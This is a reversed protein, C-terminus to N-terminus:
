KYLKRETLQIDEWFIMNSYYRVHLVTLFREHASGSRTCSIFVGDSIQRFVYKHFNQQLRLHFISMYISGGHIFSDLISFRTLPPYRKWFCKPDACGLLSIFGAQVMATARYIVTAKNVCCVWVKRHGIFIGM